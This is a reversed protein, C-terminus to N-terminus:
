NSAFLPRFWRGDEQAFTLTSGSRFVETTSDCVRHPDLPIASSGMCPVRSVDGGLIYNLTVYIAVSGIENHRNSFKEVSKAQPFQQTM